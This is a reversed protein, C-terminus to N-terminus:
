WEISIGARFAVNGGGFPVSAGLNAGINKNFRYAFAAGVAASSDYTAGTISFHKKGPESPMTIPPVALAAAVGRAAYKKLKGELANLQNVNVADTGYIGPAVNTIRREAGPAGVSVTNPQDAVSAAGIAVSNNATATANDGVAVSYNGSAVAYDGFASTNTGTAQAGAGVAVSSAAYAGAGIAVSNTSVATSNLGIAVGGASQAGANSGIAVSNAGTAQAHSGLATSDSGIANSNAGVATANAGNATSGTGMAIADTGTSSSNLGLALSGSMMARANNGIAIADVDGTFAQPGGMGAGSLAGGGITIGSSYTTGNPDGIWIGGDVASIGQTAHVQSANVDGQVNVDAAVGVDNNFISAGTVNVGGGSVKVTGTFNADCNPLTAVYETLSLSSHTYVQAAIQSAVGTVTSAVGVSEAGLGVIKAGTALLQVGTSAAAVGMAVGGATMGVGGAVLGAGGGVAAAPLAVVTVGTALAAGGTGMLPGAVGMATGGVGWATTIAGQAVSDAVASTWNAVNMVVAAAAGVANAGLGVDNAIAANLNLANIANTYQQACGGQGVASLQPLSTVVPAPTVPAPAPSTTNSGQAWVLTTAALPLFAIMAVLVIVIARFTHTMKKEKRLNIISLFNNKLMTFIRFLFFLAFVTSICIMKKLWDTFM